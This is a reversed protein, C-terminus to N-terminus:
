LRLGILWAHNENGLADVPHGPQLCMAPLAFWLFAGHLGVSHTKASNSGSRTKTTGELFALTPFIGLALM